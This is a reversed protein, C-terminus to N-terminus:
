AKEKDKNKRNMIVWAAGWGAACVVTAGILVFTTIDPVNIRERFIVKGGGRYEVKGKSLVDNIPYFTLREEGHPYTYPYYIIEGDDENIAVFVRFPFNAETEEESFSYGYIYTIDGDAVRQEAFRLVGDRYEAYSDTLTDDYERERDPNIDYGCHAFILFEEKGNFVTKKYSIPSFLVSLAIMVACTVAGLATLTLNYKHTFSLPPPTQKEDTQGFAGKREKCIIMVGVAFAALGCAAAEPILIAYELPMDICFHLAMCFVVTLYFKVNIFPRRFKKFAYCIIATWVAHSFMCGFARVAATMVARSIVATHIYSSNETISFWTGVAAGILFCASPKEKKMLAICVLAPVAKAIEESVGAIGALKWGNLLTESSHFCYFFASIFDAFSGGIVCVATLSILSFDKYPYLEFLLVLLAVDMFAGGMFYLTERDGAGPMAANILAYLAFVAALVAFVRLYFWPYVTNVGDTDSTGRRFIEAYEDKGHVRFSEYFFKRWRSKIQIKM